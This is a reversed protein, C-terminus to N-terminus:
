VKLNDVYDPKEKYDSPIISELDSGAENFNDAVFTTM